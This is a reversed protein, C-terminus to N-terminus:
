NMQTKNIIKNEYWLKYNCLALKVHKVKMVLLWEKNVESAPSLIKFLFDGSQIFCNSLLVTDYLHISLPSDTNVLYSRKQTSM